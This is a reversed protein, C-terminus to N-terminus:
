AQRLQRTTSPRADDGDFSDKVIQKATHQPLKLTAVAREPELLRDVADWLDDAALVPEVYSPLGHDLTKSGLGTRVLVRPCGAHFAAKLDDLQDGVYPTHAAGVGCRRLANRLMGPSPKRWPSKSARTCCLVLDVRAGHRALMTVLAEHVADLQAQTMSGRGVEPQNTCIAVSCGAANLRAIADAARPILDIESPHKVNTRRNVLVVGDRDLLVLSKPASCADM